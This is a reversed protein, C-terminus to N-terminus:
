RTEQWTNDRRGGVGTTALKSWPHADTMSLSGTDYRLTFDDEGGYVLM